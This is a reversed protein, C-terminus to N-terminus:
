PALAGTRRAWRRHRARARFSLGWAALVGPAPEDREGVAARFEPNRRLLEWAWDADDHELAYLYAAPIRWRDGGEHPVISEWAGEHLSM